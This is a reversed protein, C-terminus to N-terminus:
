LAALGVGDVAMQYLWNTFIGLALTAVGTVLIVTGLSDPILGSPRAAAAEDEEDLMFAHVTVRLYYYASVVSALVLVVALWNLDALLLAQIIILKGFFGALPPVGTLSLMFAALMLAPMLNRRALGRFANLEVSGTRREVLFVVAFAGVNMFTYIFGYFLLTHFGSYVPGGATSTAAAIGALMYGSHAISSYALMRKMNTQAVAILNGGIMTMAALVLLLMQVNEILPEFAVGLFRVLLALAALKPGVSMFATVPTPAGEYADPTWAHFPVLAVKFGLGVLVLGVAFYTAADDTGAALADAIGALSTSGTIGYTWAVGYALIATAFAGMVFYKVAAEGSRERTRTFATLVYVPISMLEVAILITILDTAGVVLMMGTASFLVVAALGAFPVKKLQDVAMILVLPTVLLFLFRFFVTFRDVTIQGDFIALPGDNMSALNLAAAVLNAAVVLMVVMWRNDRRSFAWVLLIAMATVAVIIEPLLLKIEQMMNM